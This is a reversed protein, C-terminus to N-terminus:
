LLMAMARHCRHAAEEVPLNWLEENFLELSFYGRYGLSELRRIMARVEM